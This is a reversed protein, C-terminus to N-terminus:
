LPGDSPWRLAMPPGDSPWRLAMPPCLLGDSAMPPWRLGDSAMPPWRLHESREQVQAGISFVADHLLYALLQSRGAETLSTRRRPLVTALGGVRAAARLYSLLPADELAKYKRVFVGFAFPDVVFTLSSLLVSLLWPPPRPWAGGGCCAASDDAAGDAVAARADDTKGDTEDRARKSGDRAALRWWAWSPAMRARSAAERGVRVVDDCVYGLLFLPLNHVIQLYNRDGFLLYFLTRRAAPESHFGIHTPARGLRWLLFALVLAVRTRHAARPLRSLLWCLIRGFGLM